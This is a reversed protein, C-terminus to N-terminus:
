FAADSTDLLPSSSSVFGAPDDMSLGTKGVAATRINHSIIAHHCAFVLSASSRAPLFSNPIKEDTWLFPSTLMWNRKGDLSGRRRMWENAITLFEMLYIAFLSARERAELFMGKVSKVIVSMTTCPDNPTENDRVTQVMSFARELHDLLHRFQQCGVTTDAIPCKTTFVKNAGGAHKHELVVESIWDSSHTIGRQLEVTPTKLCCENNLTSM